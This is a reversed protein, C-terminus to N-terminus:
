KNYDQSSISLRSKHQRVLFNGIVQFGKTLNQHLKKCYHVKSSEIIQQSPLDMDRLCRDLM